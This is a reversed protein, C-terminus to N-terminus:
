EVVKIDAEGKTVKVEIEAKETPEPEPEPETTGGNFVLDLFANTFYGGDSKGRPLIDLVHSAQWGVVSEVPILIVKGRWPTFNNDIPLLADLESFSSAEDRFDPPPYIWHALWWNLARTFANGIIHKDLWAARSYEGHIVTPFRSSKEVHLARMHDTLQAPSKGDFTSVEEWDGFMAKPVRKGLAAEWDDIVNAVSKKPNPWGYGMVMKGNNTFGDYYHDYKQDKYGSPWVFRLVAGDVEPHDKCFQDVDIAQGLYNKSQFFSWDVFRKCEKPWSM